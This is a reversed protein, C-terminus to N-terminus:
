YEEGYDEQGEGDATEENDVNIKVNDVESGKKCFTPCIAMTKRERERERDKREDKEAQIFKKIDLEEVDWVGMLSSLIGGGCQEPEIFHPPVCCKKSISPCCLRLADHIFFCAKYRKRLDANTIEQQFMKDIMSFATNLFLITDILNRKQKFLPRVCDQYQKPIKDGHTKQLFDIFRIENKVNKLNTVTKSRYDDIKKIISFVNTNCILPYTYRICRPIIYQNTEKINSIKKQIDDIKGKMKKLLHEGEEERVKEEALTLKDRRNLITPSFLLVQGSQFEVFTQLKDYQHASIKYAEASADLKMYNIIALLFAVFASISTVIINGYKYSRLPAQIVSILSSLFISPLMLRNLIAVKHNRSEMYIIKQGKLYSALIDLSSSYKHPTDHAYHKDMQEQVERYSVKEKVQGGGFKRAVQARVERQKAERLLGPINDVGGDGPLKTLKRAMRDRNIMDEEAPDPIRSNAINSSASASDSTDGVSRPGNYEEDL